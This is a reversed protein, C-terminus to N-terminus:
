LDATRIGNLYMAGGEEVQKKKFIKSSKKLYFTKVHSTYKVHGLGM